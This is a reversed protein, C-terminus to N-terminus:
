MAIGANNVHNLGIRGFGGFCVWDMVVTIAVVIPKRTRSWVTFGGGVRLVRLVM